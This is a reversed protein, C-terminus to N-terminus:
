LQDTIYTLMGAFESSLLQPDKHSTEAYYTWLIETDLDEDLMERYATRLGNSGDGGYAWEIVYNELADGTVSKGKLSFEHESFDHVSADFGNTDFEVGGLKTGSLLDCFWEVPRDKYTLNTAPIKSFDLLM